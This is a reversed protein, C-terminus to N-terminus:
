KRPRLKVMMDGVPNLAGSGPFSRQLGPFEKTSQQNPDIYGQVEVDFNLLFMAVAGIAEQKAFIRGPCISSGGGFPFFRGTSTRGTPGSLTFTVAGTDPDKKLFRDPDFVDSPSEHAWADDRHSIYSPAIINDGKRLRAKVSGSENMPIIMDEGLNRSILSDSYLRLAETWTAQLLPQAILKSIDVSGDPRVTEKVEAMVRPFLSAEAKPDLVHFLMWGTTPIVNSSLAFIFGADLSAGTRLSLNSDRYNAQRARNLRSGLFPEWVPGDPDVPQGGSLRYMELEWAVFNEFIRKRRQIATPIFIKPIGFLHLLFDREFGVFDRYAEPYMRILHEGLFAELSSTFMREQLWQYLPVADKEDAEQAYKHLANDFVKAFTATLEASKESGLLYKFNLEAERGKSAHIHHIDEKSVQFVGEFVDSEFNDRKAPKAKFLTQIASPSYVIHTRRGALQLTLIGTSRPHWAFIGDWFAGPTDKSLFSTANGLWPITYPIQAPEFVKDKGHDQQFRRVARHYAFTTWLRTLGLVATVALLVALFYYLSDM